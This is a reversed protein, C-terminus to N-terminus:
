GEPVRWQEPHRRLWEVVLVLSASYSHIGGRVGNLRLYGDNVAKGVVTATGYYRDWFAKGFNVDRQVGPHRRELIGILRYPDNATLVFLIQRQAFMWGGYQVFPDEAYVCALFGAFNAEDESAVFRQHAKEHAFTFVRQWEPQLANINAEATFPFYFGGIGLWTFVISSLLPKTPGRSRAVSAPLGEAPVMREWGRDVDRDAAAMGRPAATVAYADPWGHLELYLANAKDVLAEGLVALEDDDIAPLEDRDRAWGYREPYSPRAYALGWSVYFYVGIAAIVAWSVLAADLLVAVRRARGRWLGIGVAAIGTVVAVGVAGEVLEAVSVPVLSSGATLARQVAPGVGEVYWREVRWPFRSALWLAGLIATSAAGVAALPRRARPPLWTPRPM